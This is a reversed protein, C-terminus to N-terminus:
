GPPIASRHLRLTFEGGQTADRHYGTGLDAKADVSAIVGPNKAEVELDLSFENEVQFGHRWTATVDCHPHEKMMWSVLEISRKMKRVPRRM